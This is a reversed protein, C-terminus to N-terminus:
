IQPGWEFRQREMKTDPVTNEQLKSDAFAGVEFGIKVQNKRGDFPSVVM